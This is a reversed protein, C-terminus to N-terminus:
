LLKKWIYHSHLAILDKAVLLGVLSIKDRGQSKYARWRKTEIICLPLSLTPPPATVILYDLHGGKPVLLALNTFCILYSPRGINM